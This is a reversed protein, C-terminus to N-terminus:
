QEKMQPTKLPLQPYTFGHYRKKYNLWNLPILYGKSTENIQRLPINYEKITTKVDIESVIVLYNNTVNINIAANYPSNRWTDTKYTKEFIEKYFNNTKAMELDGKIQIAKNNLYGNTGNKDEQIDTKIYSFLYEAIKEAWEGVKLRHEVNSYRM